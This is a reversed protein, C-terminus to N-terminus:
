APRFLPNADGQPIVLGGHAAVLTYLMRTLQERAGQPLPALLREESLALM